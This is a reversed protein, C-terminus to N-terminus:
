DGHRPLPSPMYVLPFRVCCPFGWRTTPRSSWGPAPSPCVPRSPTASLGTNSLFGPLAPPPFPGQNLAPTPLLLAYSIPAVRTFEAPARSSRFAGCASAFSPGPNHDPFLTDGALADDDTKLVASLWLGGPHWPGPPQNPETSVVKRTRLCSTKDSLRIRFDQLDPEILPIHFRLSPQAISAGGSSLPPM